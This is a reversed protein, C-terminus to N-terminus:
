LAHTSELTALAHSKLSALLPDGRDRARAIPVTVQEVLGGPTTGMILVRDCLFIAEDIDHTVLLVTM